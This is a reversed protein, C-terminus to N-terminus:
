RFKDKLEFVRLFFSNKRNIQFCQNENMLLRNDKLLNEDFMEAKVDSRLETDDACPEIKDTLWYMLAYLLSYFVSDPNDAGQPNALSSNFRDVRIESNSFEDIANDTPEECYNEPEQDWNFDELADEMAEVYPRSVNAFGYCDTVSERYNTDDIFERDSEREEVKECEDIMCQEGDEDIAEFHVFDSM